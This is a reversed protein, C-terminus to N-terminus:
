SSLVRPSFRFALLSIDDALVAGGQYEALKKRLAELKSVASGDRGFTGLLLRGFAGEGLVEGSENRLDLAGDTYILVTDGPKLQYTAESYTAKIDQGLPPGNTRILSSLDKRALKDGRPIVYPFEHSARAYTVLGSTTDVAALFFTMYLNGNTTSCVAHNMLQLASAPSVGPVLEIVSSVAKAASTIMASEAGHGTVDGFWIYVKDGIMSYSWWDGGCENAPQYHGAIEIAGIQAHSKPFLMEQVATVTQMESVLRAKETEVKMLSAVEKAMYTINEALQQVEDKSNVDISVNFKGSAIEQTATVLKRLSSTLGLSALVGIFTTASILALMFLGSKIVLARLATFAVRKEIVSAVFLGGRNVASFAVLMDSGSRAKIEAVGLPFQNKFIPQFFNASDIQGAAKKNRFYKPEMSILNYRSVLYNRYASPSAFSEYLDPSYYASVVVAETGNAPNEIKQAVIFYRKFGPYDQIAYGTDAAIKLASDLVEGGPAFSEVTRQALYMHDVEKYSNGILRYILIHEVQKQRTFYDHSLQTFKFQNLDIARIVPDLLRDLNELDMRVQVSLSRSVIVSTDYIYATKEKIFLNVAMVAYFILAVSPLLILLLLLKYRLSFVRTNPANPM